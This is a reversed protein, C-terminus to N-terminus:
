RCVPIQTNRKCFVVASIVSGYLLFAEAFSMDSKWIRPLTWGEPALLLIITTMFSQIIIVLLAFRFFGTQFSNGM